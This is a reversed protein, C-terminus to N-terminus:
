DRFGYEYILQQIREAEVADISRIRFGTNYFEPNMDPRSWVSDCDFEINCSGQIASPLKMRLHHLKPTELPIESILMMGEITIDVLHGLIEGSNRDFTRLYYILHRRKLKRLEEKNM